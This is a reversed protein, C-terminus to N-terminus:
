FLHTVDLDDLVLSVALSDLNLGLSSSLSLSVVIGSASKGALVLVLVVGLLVSKDDSSGAGLENGLDNVGGHGTIANEASSLRILKSMVAESSTEGVVGSSVACTEEESSSEKLLNTKGVHVLAVAVDVTLVVVNIVLNLVLSWELSEEINTDVSGGGTSSDETNHLTSAITSDVNGVLGLSEWTVNSGVGVGDLVLSALLDISLLDLGLVVGLDVSVSDETDMDVVVHVLELLLIGGLELSLEGVPLLAKSGGLGLGELLKVLLDVSGDVGVWVSLLLSSVGLWSSLGDLSALLEDLLIRLASLPESM